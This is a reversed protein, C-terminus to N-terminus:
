KHSGPDPFLGLSAEYQAIFEDLQETHGGSALGKPLQDPRVVDFILIIREEESANYAKHMKSDDFVLVDREKHKQIEGEVWMGCSGRFKEDTPLVLPLHCRLVYNALDAWGQHSSLRTRPGLRSYLVTRLGPIKKLLSMTLPCAKCNGEILKTRKSDWAPFTHMLPIVKWDGFQDEAQYLKYEPWPCWRGSTLTKMEEVLEDFHDLLGQVEPFYERWDYYRPAVPLDGYKAFSENDSEEEEEEDDDDNDVHDNNYHFSAADLSDSGIKREGADTDLNQAAASKSLDGGVQVAAASSAGSEGAKSSELRLRELQERYYERYEEDEEDDDEEDSDEVDSGDVWERNVEGDKFLCLEAVQGWGTDGEDHAAGSGGGGGGGIGGIGSGDSSDM